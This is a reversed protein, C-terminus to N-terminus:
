NLARTLVVRNINYEDAIKKTDGRKQIRDKLLGFDLKDRAVALENVFGINEAKYENTM